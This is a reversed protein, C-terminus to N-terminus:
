VITGQARINIIFALLALLYGISAVVYFLLKITSALYADIPIVIFLATLITTLLSPLAFLFNILLDVLINGSYFVLSGLDVLPINVQNQVSGEIRDSIDEMGMSTAPGQFHGFVALDEVPMTYAFVTMGFGYFLQITLIIGLFAMMSNAM